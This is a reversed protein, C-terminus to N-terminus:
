RRPSNPTYTEAAHDHHECRWVGWPLEQFPYQLPIFRPNHTQCLASVIDPYDLVYMGLQFCEVPELRRSLRGLLLIRPRVHFALPRGRSLRHCLAAARM